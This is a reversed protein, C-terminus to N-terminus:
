RWRAGCTSWREWPRGRSCACSGRNVHAETFLPRLLVAADYHEMALDYEGRQVFLIGLNNQIEANNPAYYAGEVLATMAGVDDGQQGLVNGLNGHADGYAPDIELARRFHTAAVAPLNRELAVRGLANYARANDPAKSLSDTWLSEQTAWAQSRWSTAFALLALLGVVGYRALRPTRNRWRTTALAAGCRSLLWGAFLCFGVMPLYTRYEVMPEARPVLSTPAHTLFIWLGCLTPFAYRRRLRVIILLTFGLIVASSAPVVMISWPAGSWGGGAFLRDQLSGMMSHDVNLFGPLPMLGLGLYRLFVEAQGLLTASLCLVWNGARDDGLAIVNYFISSLVGTSAFVAIGVSVLGAAPVGWRRLTEGRTKPALESTWLLIVPVMAVVTIGLEKSLLVGVLSLACLAWRLGVRDRATVGPETAWLASWLTTLYFTTVILNPRANCYNVAESNLPHVAFIAAGLVAATTTPQGFRRLVASGVLAVLWVNVLHFLLNTLHYGFPEFGYLARDLVFTMNPLFRTASESYVGEGLASVLSMPDLLAPNDVIKVLDDFQFDHGLAPVYVIAALVLIALLGGGQPVVGSGGPVPAPTSPM